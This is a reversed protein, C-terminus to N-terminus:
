EALEQNPALLEVKGHLVETTMKGKEDTVFAGERKVLVRVEGKEDDAMEFIDSVNVDDLFVRYRAVDPPNEEDPKRLDIRM